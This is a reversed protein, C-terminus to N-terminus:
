EISSKSLIDRARAVDKEIQMALEQPNEFKKEDRLRDVFFIKLEQDYIDKYFNLIHVEISLDENGFTPNHGINVVGSYPTNEHFVRVAYIGEKPYIKKEIALNATPFGLERGRLKGTIVKGQLSFERGLFNKARKVDGNSIFERIKTSSIITTGMKIPEIIEVGFNFEKGLQILYAIDGKGGKGFTYNKGVLIKKVRIQHCLIDEVFSRPSKESFSPTFNAFILVDIGLKELIRLKEQSSNILLPSKQPSLVELPHPKFTYVVSEGGIKSAIETVRKMIKQHGLHIGDFNGLTLVSKNFHKQENKDRIIEM